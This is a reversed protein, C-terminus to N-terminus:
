REEPVIEAEFREVIMRLKEDSQLLSDDNAPKRAPKAKTPEGPPPGSDVRLRVHLGQGMEAAVEAQIMNANSKQALQKQIYGNGGYVTVDVAGGEGRTIRANTMFGAIVASHKRIRDLIREQLNDGVAPREDQRAAPAPPTVRTETSVPAPPPTSKEKPPSPIAPIGPTAAPASGFLNAEPSPEGVGQQLLEDIKGLVESFEVTRDMKAARAALMQADLLPQTSWRLRGLFDRLYDVLRYLDGLAFKTAQNKYLERRDAPVDLLDTDEGLATVLLLNRLHEVLQVGFESYDRGEEAVRSVKAIAAAADGAAFDDVLEFLLSTDVLGLAENTIEATAREVAYASVQDLLSQGDRLSGAAKHAIIEIAAPEIDIKEADAIKQLTEALPAYPILRFDFKLCRSHITAPVKHSETTAFIFVVHKPPEELTKLLADFASGSLRHVEDIIYVKYKGGTAVYHSSERLDRIDDVGTNSAADIEIVDLYSGAAIGKCAPCKGCPTPTPGNECNLAKALIRATTTKGTGRPGAFLFAHHIKGAKLANTLTRVIHPQAIIEDFTQPRWKRALVQYTM